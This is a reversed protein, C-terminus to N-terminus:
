GRETSSKAEVGVMIGGATHLDAVRRRDSLSFGNWMGPYLTLVLLNAGYESGCVGIIARADGGRVLQECAHCTDAKRRADYCNGGLLAFGLVRGFDRNTVWARLCGLPHAPRQFTADIYADILDDANTSDDAELPVGRTVDEDKDLMVVRLVGFGIGDARGDADLDLSRYFADASRMLTVLKAACQQRDGACQREITDSDAVLEVLCLGYRAAGNTPMQHGETANNSTRAHRLASLSLLKIRLPRSSTQIRDSTRHVIMQSATASPDYRRLPEIYLWTSIRETILALGDFAQAHEDYTGFVVANNHGAVRGEYYPIHLPTARASEISQRGTPLPINRETYYNAFM